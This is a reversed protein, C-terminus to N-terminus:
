NWERQILWSTLIMNQTSDLMTMMHTM